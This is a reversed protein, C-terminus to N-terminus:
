YLVVKKYFTSCILFPLCCFIAYVYRFESYVPTSILLTILIAILPVTLFLGEKDKRVICFFFLILVIWVHFGICLFIQLFLNESFLWFYEDVCKKMNKAYVTRELGLDEKGEVWDAWRWYSYGGNWYGLPRPFEKFGM